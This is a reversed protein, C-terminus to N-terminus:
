PSTRNGSVTETNNCLNKAGCSADNNTVPTITLTGSIVNNSDLSTSIAINLTYSCAGDTATKSGVYESTFTNGSVSGSFVHTGVYLDLATALLGQVTLTANTGDQTFVVAFTSSTNGAQWGPLGCDDANQTTIISYTGAFNTPTSSCACTFAFASLVFLKRFRM